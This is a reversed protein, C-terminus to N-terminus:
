KHANLYRAADPHPLTIDLPFGQAKLGNAIREVRDIVAVDPSQGNWIRIALIQSASDNAMVPAELLKPKRGPKMRHVVEAGEIAQEM